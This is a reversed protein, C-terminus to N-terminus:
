FYPRPNGLNRYYGAPYLLLQIPVYDHNGYQKMLNQLHHDSIPFHDIFPKGKPVKRYNKNSHAKYHAARYAEQFSAIFIMISLLSVFVNLTLSWSISMSKFIM